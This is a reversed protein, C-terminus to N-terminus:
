AILMRLASQDSSKELNKKKKREEMEGKKRVKRMGKQKIIKEKRIRQGGGEREAISFFLAFFRRSLM